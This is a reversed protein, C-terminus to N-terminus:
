GLADQDAPWPLPFVDRYPRAEDVVRAVSPRALLDRYYRTINPQADADWRHIAWLYFLDPFIARLRAVPTFSLDRRGGAAWSTASSRRCRRRSTITPM